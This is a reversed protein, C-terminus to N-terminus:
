PKEIVYWAMSEPEIEVPVDINFKRDLGYNVAEGGNASLRANETLGTYYLNVRIVRRVKESSPNFVVLMGMTELEPNVHLM